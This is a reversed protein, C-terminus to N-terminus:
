YDDNSRIRKYRNEQWQWVSEQSNFVSSKAMLYFPTIRATYGVPSTRHRSACYATVRVTQKEYAKLHVIVAKRIVINQVDDGLTELLLGQRIVVDMEVGTLNEITISLGFIIYWLSWEGHDDIPSVDADVDGKDMRSPLGDKSDDVGIGLDGPKPWRCTGDRTSKSKFIGHADACTEGLLKAGGLNRDRKDLEPFLRLFIDEYRENTPTSIIQSTNLVRNLSERLTPKEVPETDWDLNYPDEEYESEDQYLSSYEDHSSNSCKSVAVIGVVLAAIALIVFVIRWWREEPTYYGYGM